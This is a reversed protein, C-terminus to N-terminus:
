KPTIDKPDTSSQETIVADRITSDRNVIAEKTTAYIQDIESVFTAERAEQESRNLHFYVTYLICLSTLFFFLDM